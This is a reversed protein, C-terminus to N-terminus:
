MAEDISGTDMEEISEIRQLQRRRDCQQGGLLGPRATVSKTSRTVSPGDSRQLSVAEAEVRFVNM